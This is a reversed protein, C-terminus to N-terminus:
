VAAELFAGVAAMLEDESKGTVEILPGFRVEVTGGGRGFFRSGPPLIERAGRIFVPVIPTATETALRFGGRKLKGIRGDRSRTGEPAIWVSTGSRIIEAAEAMAARAKDRDGSRDVSIFGAEKMARGWVPVRFLEAKAVMRLSGPCAVFLAPVDLHSGHNSMFVVPRDPVTERGRTVVEVNASSLVGSSWWRLRDDCRERTLRGTYADAVTPVSILLTKAVASGTALM